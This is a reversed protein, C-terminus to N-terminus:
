AAPKKSKFLRGLFQRSQITPKSKKSPTESKPPESKKVHRVQRRAAQKLENIDEEVKSLRTQWEPIEQTKPEPTEPEAEPETEEPEAELEAEEADELEAEKIEEPEILKPPM